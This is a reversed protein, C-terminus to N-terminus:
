NEELQPTSVLRLVKRIIKAIEALYRVFTIQTVENEAEGGEDGNM